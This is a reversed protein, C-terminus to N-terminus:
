ILLYFVISYFSTLRTFRFLLFFIFIFHSLFICPHTTGEIAMNCISMRAEMSFSEIAEGAFEIVHGTGIPPNPLLTLTLTLTYFLYTPFPYFHTLTLTLTLFPFPEILVLIMLQFDYHIIYFLM